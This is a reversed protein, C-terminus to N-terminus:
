RRSKKSLAEIQKKYVDVEARLKGLELYIEIYKNSQEAKEKGNETIIEEIKQQQQRIVTVSAVLASCLIGIAAVIINRLLVRSLGHIEYWNM